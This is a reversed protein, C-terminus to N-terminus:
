DGEQHAVSEGDGCCGPQLGTKERVFAGIRRLAERSEPLNFVHYVHWMGPFVDLRVEVGAAIMRSELMLADDFLVERTGVHILTPPFRSDFKAYVPSIYPDDLEERGGYQMAAEHLNQGDVLPDEDKKEIYSRGTQTLDAWPSICMVCAPTPENLHLLALACSVCLGGGASDGIFAVKQPDYGTKYLWLVAECADQLGAPFPHEPALRYEFSLAKMGAAQAVYTILARSAFLDGTRYAGGHMYLLVRDEPAGEPLIWEANLPCGDAPVIRVGPPTTKVRSLIAQGSRQKQLPMSVIYPKMMKMVRSLIVSEISAM